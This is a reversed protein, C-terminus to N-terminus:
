ARLTVTKLLPRARSRILATLCNEDKLGIARALALDGGDRNRGGHEVAM